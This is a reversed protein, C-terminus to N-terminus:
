RSQDVDALMCIDPLHRYQENWDMGYGVVFVNPITFGCYDPTLLVERRAPKDLLTCLRLSAPQLPALHQLLFITSHGREIINEILVVERDRIETQLDHLVRITHQNGSDSGDSSIEIFAIETPLDLQRVLDALFIFAGKLAGVLLITKGQYDRRMESALRVVATHIQDRSILVTPPNSRM